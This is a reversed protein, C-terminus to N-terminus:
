EQLSGTNKVAEEIDTEALEKGSIVEGEIGAWNAITKSTSPHDGTIMYIEIGASKCKEVSDRVDERLPDILCQFGLFELGDFSFGEFKKM